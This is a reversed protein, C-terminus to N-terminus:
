LKTNTQIDKRSKKKWDTTADDFQVSNIKTKTYEFISMQIMNQLSSRLIIMEIGKWKSGLKVANHAADKTLKGVEGVLSNQARTKMTDLPYTVAWSMTGCLLGAIGVAAPTNAKSAENYTTLAQKTAEYVGFYIGSGVVDRVLHLQFGTYMGLIGKRQIIQRCAEITTVKGANKPAVSGITTGRHEAKESAMLVSTQTANKALEFPCSVLALAAGSIAGAATFCGVTALNPYTGPTNVLELPSEGTATEIMADLAYKAKQYVSFGVIRTVTISILPATTGAWFGRIGETGFTYRACDLSNTFHRSQMRTKLNEFPSGALVAVACAPGSAFQTRYKKLLYVRSDYDWLGSTAMAIQPHSAEPSLTAKSDHDIALRNHEHSM